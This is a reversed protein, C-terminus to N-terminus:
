RPRDELAVAAGDECRYLVVPENLLLRGFPTRSVEDSQAAIYWCNRLFM